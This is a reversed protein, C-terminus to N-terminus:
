IFKNPVEAAATIGAAEQAAIIHQTRAADQIVKLIYADVVALKQATTLATFDVESGSLKHWYQAAATLTDIVRQTQATFAITVTTNNGSTTLTTAM